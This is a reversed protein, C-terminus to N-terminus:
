FNRRWVTANVKHGLRHLAYPACLSSIFVLFLYKITNPKEQFLTQLAFLPTEM